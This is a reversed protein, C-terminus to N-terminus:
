YPAFIRVGWPANAGRSATERLGKRSLAAALARNFWGHGVLLCPAHDSLLSAACEARQRLVRRQGAACPSLVERARAAALWLPLPWRGPLNPAHLSEEAFIPDSLWDGEPALKVATQRARPAASAFLRVGQCLAPIEPPPDGPTLGALDYAACFAAFKEQDPLFPRDCAVPGHRVLVIRSV